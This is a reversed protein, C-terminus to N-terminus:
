KKKIMNKPDLIKDLNLKKDLKLERAAEKLSINKKYALKAVKASEDYGIYPNLATVLMLSNELNKNIIEKNPKIGSLCNKTFSSISESLLNISQLLNFIIVPKFVNLELHGSAASISITLNNGMVQSSVMTLAEAQTPNVKGPMISSGPENEPIKIEGIGSRPGSSLFKIDNGIKMLSIALSNLAASTDVIPGHFSLSEFKNKSSYFSIKTIKKLYNIFKNEFGKPTNIGTGVATGGQALALMKKYIKEINDLDNKIQETYGSFEDGLTLPTADQMHTRGIKIIKKFEKTKKQLVSLMEKLSPILKKQIQIVSAIHMTTPFSDNSSQSANVHDNPHVPKKTGVKGTSLKNAYNSIVENLNMNTQTGSGTQWIKLPFQNDLNGKLIQDTAKIILNSTKNDLVKLDKNALACAKKQIAFAKIFDSSFTETGINFNNISRQTQAGWLFDKPVAIKGFSDNEYRKKTTSM